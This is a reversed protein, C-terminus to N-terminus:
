QPMSSEPGRDTEGALVEKGLIEFDRCVLSRERRSCMSREMGSPIKKYHGVMGERDPVSKAM